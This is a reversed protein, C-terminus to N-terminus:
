KTVDRTIFELTHVTRLALMNRNTAYMVAEKMKGEHQQRQEPTLRAWDDRSAKLDEIEKIVM